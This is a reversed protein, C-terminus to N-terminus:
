SSEAESSFEEIWRRYQQARRVRPLIIEILAVGAAVFGLEWTLLLYVEGVVAGKSAVLAVSTSGGVAIALACSRYALGDISEQSIRRRSFWDDPIDEVLDALYNELQRIVTEHNALALSAVLAMYPIILTLKHFETSIFAVGILTIAAAVYGIQINDRAAIRVSIQNYSGEYRGSWYIANIRHREEQQIHTMPEAMAAIREQSFFIRM